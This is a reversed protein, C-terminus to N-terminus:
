TQDLTGRVPQQLSPFLESVDFPNDMVAFVAEANFGNFQAPLDGAAIPDRFLAAAREDPKVLLEILADIQANIALAPDNEDIREIAGPRQANHDVKATFAVKM